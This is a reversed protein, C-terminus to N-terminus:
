NEEKEYIRSHRLFTFGGCICTWHWDLSNGYISKSFVLYFFHCQHVEACHSCSVSHPQHVRHHPCVRLLHLCVPSLHQGPPAAGHHPCVRRHHTSDCPSVGPLCELSPSHRSFAALFIPTTARPYLVAGRQCAEWVNHFSGRSLYGDPDVFDFCFNAPGRWM